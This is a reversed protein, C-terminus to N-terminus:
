KWYPEYPLATSGENLMLSDVADQAAATQPQFLIYKTESTTTITAQRLSGDNVLTTCQISGLQGSIPKEDSDTISIRFVTTSVSNSISLTYTTNPKCAMRVVTGTSGSGYSWENVNGLTSNPYVENLSEDFLNESKEKVSADHWGTWTATFESPQVTTDVTITNAGDTTPISVANSLTDAYDDIKMLPENVAATTPSLLTHWVTFPTDNASQAALYEKLGQVTNGSTQANMIASGFNAYIIRYNDQYPRLTCGQEDANPIRNLFPLHTSIIDAIAGAYNAGIDIHYLYDNSDNRSKVWSETGKFVLKRIQRTSQVSGLYNVTSGQASSIPIKYEGSHEGSTELEGVGVVDVPNSPSPTGNQVTNGKISYTSIPQGNAYITDGSQITETATGLKRLSHEWQSGDYKKSDAM